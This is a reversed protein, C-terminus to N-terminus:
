YDLAGLRFIHESGLKGLELCEPDDLVTLDIGRARLLEAGAGRQRDEGIVVRAFGFQLITGACMLCPSTNTVLTLQPYDTRRGAARICEMVAHAISDNRARVRARGTAVVVGDRSALAGVPEDGTGAAARAQTLVEQLLMASDSEM